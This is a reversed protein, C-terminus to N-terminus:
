TEYRVARLSALRALSVLDLMLLMLGVKPCIQRSNVLEDDDEDDDLEIVAMRSRSIM